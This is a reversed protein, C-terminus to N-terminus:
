QLNQALKEAISQCFKPGYLLIQGMEPSESQFRYHLEAQKATLLINNQASFPRHIDWRMLVLNSTDGEVRPVASKNQWVDAVLQAVNEVSCIFQKRPPTTDGGVIENFRLQKAVLAAEQRRLTDAIRAFDSCFGRLSKIHNVCDKCRLRGDRLYSPYFSAKKKSQNCNDCRYTDSMYSNGIRM